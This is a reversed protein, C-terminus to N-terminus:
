TENWEYRTARAKGSCSVAGEDMLIVMMARVQNASGGAYKQIETSSVPRDADQVFGRIKEFYDQKEEPNRFNVMRGDTVSGGGGGKAGPPRRHRPKKKTTKKSAKKAVKEEQTIVEIVKLEVVQTKDVVVDVPQDGENAASLKVTFGQSTLASIVDAVAAGGVGQISLEVWKQAVANLVSSRSSSVTYRKGPTSISYVEGERELAELLKATEPKKLRAVKAVAPPTAYGGIVGLAHLVRDQKRSPLEFPPQYEVTEKVSIPTGREFHPPLAVRRRTLRLLHGAEVLAEIASIVKNQDAVSGANLGRFLDIYALSSRDDRLMFRM